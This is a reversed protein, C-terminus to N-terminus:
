CQKFLALLFGSSTKRSCLSFGMCSCTVYLFHTVSPGVLPNHKIYNVNASTVTLPGIGDCKGFCLRILFADFSM